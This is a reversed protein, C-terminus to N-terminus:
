PSTHSIKQPILRQNINQMLEQMWIHLIYNYQIANYHCEVAYPFFNSVRQLLVSLKRTPYLNCILSSVHITQIRKSPVYINTYIYKNRIEQPCHIYLWKHSCTEYIGLNAPVIFNLEDSFIKIQHHVGPTCPFYIWKVQPPEHSYSIDEDCPLRKFFLSNASSM